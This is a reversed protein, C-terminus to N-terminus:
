NDRVKRESVAHTRASSDQHHILKRESSGCICPTAYSTSTSATRLIAFSHLCRGEDIWTFVLACRDQLKGLEHETPQNEPPPYHLYKDM